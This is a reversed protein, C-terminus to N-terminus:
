YCQFLSYINEATGKRKSVEHKRYQIPFSPHQKQYNLIAEETNDTSCDNVIVVEKKIDNLLKVVQIRDLIRHITTGENYAPIVISLKQIM